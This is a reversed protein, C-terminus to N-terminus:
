TASSLPLHANTPFGSLIQCQWPYRVQTLPLMSDKM